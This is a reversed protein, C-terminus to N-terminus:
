CPETLREENDNAAYDVIRIPRPTLEGEVIAAAEEIGSAVKPM